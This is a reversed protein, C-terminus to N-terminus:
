NRFELQLMISYGTSTCTAILSRKKFSAWHELAREQVSRATEGVYVSPVEMNLEKLEGKKLAELNCETCVPHKNIFSVFSKFYGFFCKEYFNLYTSM